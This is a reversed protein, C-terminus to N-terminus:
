DAPHVKIVPITIWDTQITGFGYKVKVKVFINFSDTLGVTSFKVMLFGHRNVPLQITGGSTPDLASTAGPATQFLTISQPLTQREGNMDCEANGLDVTFEFPGYYNWYGPNDNFNRGRWDTVTVLSDLDIYSGKEGFDVDYIFCVGKSASAEPEASESDDPDPEVPDTPDVPDSPEAPEDPEAPTKDEPGVEVAPEVPDQLDQPDSVELVPIDVTISCARSIVGGASATINATGAKHVHIVGNEVTAVSPDSSSWVIQDYDAVPPVVVADLTATEGVKLTMSSESLRVAVVENDSGCSVCFLSVLALAIFIRSGARTM